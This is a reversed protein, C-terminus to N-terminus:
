SIRECSYTTGTRENIKKVREGLPWVAIMM